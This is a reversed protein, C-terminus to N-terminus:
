APTRRRHLDRFERFTVRSAGLERTAFALFRDLRDFFADLEAQRATTPAAASSPRARISSCTSCRCATTPWAAPSRADHRRAVLVVPAAVARARHRAEAAGAQDPVAEARPGLGARARAADATAAGGLAAAGARQSSGPRTAHDYALYYPTLPADAFDPGGKHAEYFLPAVSSDVLYGARELSSVHAASFGFRGSRYSVPRAGVADEIARTLAALQADFQELPLDLAYLHRQLDEATRRRRRGRTIIRASRARHAVRAARAARRGIASGQRGALTIVYTPRVGHRRFCRTCRRCRTSTRSRRSSARPRADWQNDSETDIGVSCAPSATPELATM